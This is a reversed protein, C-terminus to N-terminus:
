IIFYFHEPEARLLILNIKHPKMQFYEFNVNKFKKKFIKLKKKFTFLKWSTPPVWNHFSRLNIECWSTGRKEYYIGRMITNRQSVPPFSWLSTSLLTKIWLYNLFINIFSDIDSSFFIILTELEYFKPSRSLINKLLLISYFAQIQFHLM